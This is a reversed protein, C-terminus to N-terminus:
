NIQLSLNERRDSGTKKIIALYKEFFSQNGRQLQSQSSM